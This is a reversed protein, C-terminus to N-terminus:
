TKLGDLVIIQGDAVLLYFIEDCKSVDFTYTKTIFKENSPRLVKRVYPPRPNLEVLNVENVEVYVFVINSEQDNENIEVYSITEKKHYKNPRANVVKLWEVKRVKNELKAMDRLYQIDLKKRISNDLGGAAMKVLEHEPVQTFFRLKM